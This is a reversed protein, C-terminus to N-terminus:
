FIQSFPSTPDFPTLSPLSLPPPPDPRWRREDRRGAVSRALTLDWCRAVPPSPLSPSLLHPIQSAGGNMGGDRRREDRRRGDWGGGTLSPNAGQSPWPPSPAPSAAALSPSLLSSPLLSPPLLDPNVQSAPAATHQALELNLTNETQGCALPSPRTHTETPKRPYCSPFFLGLSYTRPPNARFQCINGAGFEVALGFM